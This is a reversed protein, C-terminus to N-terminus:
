KIPFDFYTDPYPENVLTFHWWETALGKFGYKNMINKLLMRNHYAAASIEKNSPHSLKDFCDFGTGMDISNDHFRTRYDAFCSVLKDGPHYDAQQPAPIPIITLDMTSGRSHGSQAAVYGKKIFDKKDVRPYFEAKMKQDSSQGWTVFEDVAMQPRYCDYVKLSLSHKKLEEQVKFLALAAEKTLICEAAYYGKIPHGIFNHYTAYRMDQVITPAVNKLYVFNSPIADANAQTISFLLATFILSRIHNM